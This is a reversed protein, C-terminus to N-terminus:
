IVIVPLATVRIVSLSILYEAALASYAPGRSAQTVSEYVRLVQECGPILGVGYGEVPFDAVLGRHPSGNTEDASLTSKGVTANWQRYLVYWCWAM